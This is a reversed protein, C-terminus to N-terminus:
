LSRATPQSVPDPWIVQFILQAFRQASHHRAFAQRCHDDGLPATGQLLAAMAEAIALPQTTDVAMGLRHQRTLEGLLGYDSSLVPKGAAAARVLVGSMGIHRQYPALIVDARQFYSLVAAEPVYARHQVIQVPQTRRLQAIQAEIQPRDAPPVEGVILLCLHNCHQPPLMAIAQLLQYIGKRYNILGFLLFVQRHSDIGFEEDLQQRTVASLGSALGASASWEVPDPLAYIPATASLAAVAYPDLCFLAQLQPHSLIRQLLYHEWRQPWRQPQAQFQPYHFSPRFYIASFRCPLRRGGLLVGWLLPWRRNDFYPILCHDVQLATAYQEILRWEQFSRRIRGLRRTPDQLARVEPPQLATFRVRSPLAGGPLAADALAVIEPHRALFEPTVVVHLQGPLQQTQWHSVLYRIYVPYHGDSSLEFLMLGAPRPDIGPAEAWFLPRHAPSHERLASRQAFMKIWNM